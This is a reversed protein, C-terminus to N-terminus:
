LPPLSTILLKTVPLALPSLKFISPELKDVIVLALDVLFSLLNTNVKSLFLVSVKFESSSIPRTENCPPPKRVLVPLTLASVLVKLNNELARPM